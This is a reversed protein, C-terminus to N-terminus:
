ILMVKKRLRSFRVDEFLEAVFTIRNFVRAVHQSLLSRVCGYEHESGYYHILSRKYRELIKVDEKLSRFVYSCLRQFFFKFSIRKKNNVSEGGRLGLFRGERFIKCWPERHRHFTWWVVACSRGRITKFDIYVEIRKGFLHMRSLKVFHLRSLNKMREGLALAVGSERDVVAYRCFCRPFGITRNM